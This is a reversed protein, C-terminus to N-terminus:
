LVHDSIVTFGRFNRFLYLVDMTDQEAAVPFGGPELGELHFILHCFIERQSFAYPGTAAAPMMSSLLPGDSADRRRRLGACGHLELPAVGEGLGNSKRSGRVPSTRCRFSSVVGGEGRGPM